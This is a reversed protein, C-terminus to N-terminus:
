FNLCIWRSTLAQPSPRGPTLGASLLRAELADFLARHEPRMSALPDDGSLGFGTETRIIDTCQDARSIAADITYQDLEPLQTLLAKLPFEPRLPHRKRLIRIVEAAQVELTDLFTKAYANQQDAIHYRSPITKMTADLSLHSLRALEDLAVRGKDRTALADALDSLNQGMAADLVAVHASKARTVLHAGPDIIRGGILTRGSAPQRLAFYQGPYGTQPTRFELQAYRRENATDGHRSPYFRIRAAVYSSGFAVMVHDMHKLEADIEMAKSFAIDFRLSPAFGITACLVDGRKVRKADVGRLGVSVRRGPPAHDCPAGFIQIERVTGLLGSPAIQFSAERSLPAGTLTGTVVTGSGPRSFVRDIPLFVGLLPEPESL